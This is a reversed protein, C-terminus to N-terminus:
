STGNVVIFSIGLDEALITNPTVAPTDDGISIPLSQVTDSVYGKLLIFQLLLPYWEREPISKYTNDFPIASHDLNEAPLMTNPTNSSPLIYSIFNRLYDLPSREEALPEPSHLIDVDKIKNSVVDTRIQDFISKPLGNQTAKDIADDDVPIELQDKDFVKCYLKDDDSDKTAFLALQGKEINNLSDADPNEGLFVASLVPSLIAEVSMLNVDDGDPLMPNPNGATTDTISTTTTAEKTWGMRRHYEATDRKYDALVKNVEAHIRATLAEIEELIDAYNRYTKLADPEQPTTPRLSAKQKYIEKSDPFSGGFVETAETTSFLTTSIALGLIMKQINKM